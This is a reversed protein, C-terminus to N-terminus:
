YRDDCPWCLIAVLNNGTVASFTGTLQNSDIFNWDNDTVQVIVFRDDDHHVRIELTFVDQWAFTRFRVLHLKIGNSM